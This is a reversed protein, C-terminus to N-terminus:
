LKSIIKVLKKKVLHSFYETQGHFRFKAKKLTKKCVPLTLIGCAQKSYVLEFARNISELVYKSNNSDPKGLNLKINAKIDIVPLSDQFIKLPDENKKISHFHVDLRFLENVQKLKQIDDILVFPPLKKDKRQKWAKIIIESSIGSPEGMTIAIPKQSM